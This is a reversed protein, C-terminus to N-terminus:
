HSLIIWRVGFRLPAGQDFPVPELLVVTVTRFGDFERGEPSGGREIAVGSIM